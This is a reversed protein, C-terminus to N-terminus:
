PCGGQSPPDSGADWSGARSARGLVRSHSRPDTVGRRMTPEIPLSSACRGRTLDALRDPADANASEVYATRAHSRGFGISPRRTRGRAFFAHFARGATLDRSSDERNRGCEGWWRTGSASSASPRVNCRQGHTPHSAPAISLHHHTPPIGSRDRWPHKFRRRPQQSRLFHREQRRRRRGPPRPDM